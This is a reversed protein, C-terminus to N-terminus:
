CRRVSSVQAEVLVAGLDLVPSVHAHSMQATRTDLFVAGGLVHEGSCREHQADAVDDRVDLARERPLQMQLASERDEVLIAAMERLRRLM